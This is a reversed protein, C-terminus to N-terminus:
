RTVERGGIQCSANQIKIERKFKRLGRFESFGRAWLFLIPVGGGGEFFGLIGGERFRPTKCAHPKEQLFFANEMHEYFQRM